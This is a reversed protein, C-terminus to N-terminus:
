LAVKDQAEAVVQVTLVIEQGHLLDLAEKVVMIPLQLILM